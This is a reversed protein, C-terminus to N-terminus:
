ILPKHSRIKANYMQTYAYNYILYRKNIALYNIDIGFWKVINVLFVSDDIRFKLTKAVLSIIKNTLQISGM